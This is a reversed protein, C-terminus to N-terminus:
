AVATASMPKMTAPHPCRWARPPVGASLTQSSTTAARSMTEARLSRGIVASSLRRMVMVRRM